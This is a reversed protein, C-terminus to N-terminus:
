FSNYSKNNLLYSIITHSVNFKKALARAGFESHKPIYNQRIYNVDDETLKRNWTNPKGVLSEHLKRKADESIPKGTQHDRSHDSRKMLELNEIRNDRKNGNIHHVIEDKDLKRGLHQEMIYRHEDIKKGNVKIAKYAYM